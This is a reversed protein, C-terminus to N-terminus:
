QRRHLCQHSLSSSRCSLDHQAVLLALRKLPPSAPGLGTLRQRQSAPYHEGGRCTRRVLFDGLLQFAVSDRDALPPCPERRLPQVPQNILRTRALRALDSVLEDLLDDDRRQLRFRIVSRRLPRRARHGGLNTQVLSRDTPDPAREPQFRV